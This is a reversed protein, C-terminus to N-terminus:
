SKKRETERMGASKKALDELGFEKVLSKTSPWDCGKFDIISDQDTKGGM